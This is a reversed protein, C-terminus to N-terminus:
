VQSRGDKEGAIRGKWGGARGTLLGGERWGKKGSSGSGQERLGRSTRGRVLGDNKQNEGARAEESGGEWGGEKWRGGEGQLEGERWGM